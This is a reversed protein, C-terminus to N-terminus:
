AAQRAEICVAPWGAQTLGDHLWATLSCAEMGLRALPLDLRELADHLADPASEARVEKVITGDADVVCIATEELSVDLGAYYTMVAGKRQKRRGVGGREAMEFPAAPDDGPVHHLLEATPSEPAPRAAQDPTAATPLTLTLDDRPPAIAELTMCRTRQVAWKDNQELLIAGALRNIAAKDPVIGVVDTRRKIEGNLRELPKTSHFRARHQKPFTMSALVDAEAEDLRAALKPLKQRVQDAV